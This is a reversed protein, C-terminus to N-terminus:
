RARPTSASSCRTSSAAPSSGSSAPSRPPRAIATPDGVSFLTVDAGAARMTELAVVSDKGGGIPVLSRGTAGAAHPRAPPARAPPSACAAALDLGNRYAYEGLGQVYVDTLLRARRESLPGTEVAVHEPAAAKYYSVGAVQHLLDLVAHLAARRAPELPPAGAPLEIRETFRLEDDLAYSLSATASPEDFTWGTVRFTAYRAPEFVRTPAAQSM